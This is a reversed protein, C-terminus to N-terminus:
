PASRVSPIITPRDLPSIEIFRLDGLTQEFVHLNGTGRTSVDRLVSAKDMIVLVDHGEVKAILLPTYGGLESAYSWGVLSVSAPLAGPVLAKDLKVRTWEAFAEDTTCVQMPTFNTEQQGAYVLALPGKTTAFRVGWVTVVLALTAALAWLLGPRTARVAHVTVPQAPLALANEIDSSAPVAFATRLADDIERAQALQKALEPEAALRAEIRLREANELQGDLYRALLEQDATLREPTNDHSGSV